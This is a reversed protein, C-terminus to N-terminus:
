NSAEYYKNFKLIAELHAIRDEYQSIKSSALDYPIEFTLIQSELSRIAKKYRWVKLKNTLKM